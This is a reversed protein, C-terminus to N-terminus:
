GMAGTQAFSYSYCNGLGVIIHDLVRIGLLGGACKMRETFARDEQSPEVAGSPHNHFLIVSAANCTIAFRFIDRPHALSANLTGQSILIMGIAKNKTDLALVWMQEQPENGCVERAIVAVDKADTLRSAEHYNASSERVLEWKLTQVRM